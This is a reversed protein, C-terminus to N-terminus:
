SSECAKAEDRGPGVLCTDKGKGGELVDSGYSGDMRDSGPGGVLRDPGDGGFLKDGGADGFLEDDGLGGILTDKDGGGEIRDSGALGCIVDTGPTGVLVDDGRTGLISCPPPDDLRSDVWDMIYANWDRGGHDSDGDPEAEAADVRTATHFECPERTPMSVCMRLTESAEVTSGEIADKLDEFLYDVAPVTRSNGDEDMVTIPTDGCWTQDNRNWVLMLPRKMKGGRVLNAAERDPDALPGIRETQAAIDIEALFSSCAEPDTRALQVLDPLAAGTVGADMVVGNVKIGDRQLGYGLAFAGVSGASTGHLIMHSTKWRDMVFTVASKTALLGDAARPQGNEDPSFPNNPDTRGVGSYLDHDCMSPVLFRFGAPHENADQVLGKELMVGILSDLGEEDLSGPFFEDPRYGGDASFSGSGGGHLRVWLPRRTSAQDGVDRVVLFSHYGSRGCTYASNRYLEAIYGNSRVSRVLEIQETTQAQDLDPRPAATSPRPAGFLLLALLLTWGARASLPYRSTPSETM